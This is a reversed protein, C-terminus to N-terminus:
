DEPSSVRAFAGKEIANFERFKDGRYKKRM